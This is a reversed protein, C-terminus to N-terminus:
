RASRPLFAEEREGDDRRDWRRVVDCGSLRSRSWLPRLRLGPSSRSPWTPPSSDAVAEEDGDRGRSVLAVEDGAFTVADEAAETMAAPVGGARDLSLFYQLFPSAMLRKRAGNCAQPMRAPHPSSTPRPGEAGDPGDEGVEFEPPDLEGIQQEVDRPPPHPHGDEDERVLAAPHLLGAEHRHDQLHRGRDDSRHRRHDAVLYAPIPRQEGPVRRLGRGQRSGGSRDVCVSRDGDDVSQGRDRRSAHCQRTRHLRREERLERM